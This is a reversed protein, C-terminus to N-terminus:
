CGAPHVWPSQRSGRAPSGVTPAELSRQGAPPEARGPGCLLQWVAAAAFSVVTTQNLERVGILKAERVRLQVHGDRLQPCLLPVTKACPERMPPIVSRVREWRTGTGDGVVPLVWPMGREDRDAPKKCAAGLLGEMM